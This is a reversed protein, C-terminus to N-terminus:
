KDNGVIEDFVRLFTRHASQGFCVMIVEELTDDESLFQRTTALAIRAAQDAPYGYVGTSIAPFAITRVGHFVALALSNRYCHALLEPEGQRGGRWVPGVTHIVYKAPLNYGGTIRAEGTPCGGLQRCEALLGPGAARHIAGDVGGGGLLSSNAANVIADVKLRTIDGEIIQVRRHWAATGKGPPQGNGGNALHYLRDALTEITDRQALRALWDPPINDIGYHAGALQGYVAATTDADDGLNAALLCGQRFSDSHYFAWLAAELSKVVYGSGQIQPPNREKFSGGAVMDIEAVLPQEDWYGPVPTYRPALLSAKDVGSLAGVILGGLYRCADVATAAGHTTRSSEASQEIARRPENGYFMPVPALRMISGNGATHPHTSGAYPNGTQEFHHLATRVTNGIDFCVGTSSLHGERYWRVYRAMQDAPDFAQKEVLSEALCLAMSTDDTWQGPELRFPGGGVMDTIPTFTGPPRFELTTGVADAVALGLLCGLYRKRKEAM